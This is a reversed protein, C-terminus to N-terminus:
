IAAAMITPLLIGVLGNEWIVYCSFGGVEKAQLETKIPGFLRMNPVSVRQITKYVMDFKPVFKNYNVNKSSTIQLGGILSSHKGHKLDISRRVRLSFIPIM